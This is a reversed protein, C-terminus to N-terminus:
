CIQVTITFHDFAICSQLSVVLMAIGGKPEYGSHEITAKCFINGKCGAELFKGNNETYLCPTDTGSESEAALFCKFDTDEKQIYRWLQCKM